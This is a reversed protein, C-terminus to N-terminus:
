RLLRLFLDYAVNRVNKSDHSILNSINESLYALVGCHTQSCLKIVNLTELLEQNDGAVLASQLNVVLKGASEQTSLDENTLFNSSGSLHINPNEDGDKQELTIIKALEILALINFFYNWKLYYINANIAISIEFIALRGTQRNHTVKKLKNSGPYNDISLCM